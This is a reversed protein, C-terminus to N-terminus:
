HYDKKRLREEGHQRQDVKKKGEPHWTLLTVCNRSTEMRLIHDTWKWSRNM